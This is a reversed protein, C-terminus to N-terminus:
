SVKTVRALKVVPSKRQREAFGEAKKRNTYIRAFKEGDSYYITAMFHHHKRRM